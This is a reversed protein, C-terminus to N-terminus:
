LKLKCLFGITIKNIKSITASWNENDNKELMDKKLYRRLSLVFPLNQFNHSKIKNKTTDM